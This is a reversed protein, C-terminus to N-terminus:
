KFLGGHGESLQKEAQALKEPTDVTLWLKNTIFASVLRNQEILPIYGHQIISAYRGSPINALIEAELIHLGTFVLPRLVGSPEARPLGRIRRVRLEEEVEVAGYEEWDPVQKLVMTAAARKRKHHEMVQDLEIDMITDANIVLFTRGQFFAEARKIGGGTGLINPEYSYSISLGLSDGNGIARPIADGQHHVNIVVETIGNKKLLLLPYHILPRGAVELLPKPTTETLPRLRTGLGAALIMARV